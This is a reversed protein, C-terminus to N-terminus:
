SRLMARAWFVGVILGCVPGAWLLTQGLWLQELVFVAVWMLPIATASGLGGSTLVVTIALAAGGLKRLPSSPKVSFQAPRGQASTCGTRWSLTHEPGPSADMIERWRRIYPRLIEIRGSRYRRYFTILVGGSIGPSRRRGYRPFARRLLPRCARVPHAPEARSGGARHDRRGARVSAGPWVRFRSRYPALAGSRGATCVGM